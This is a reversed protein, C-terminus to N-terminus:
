ERELVYEKTAYGVGAHGREHAKRWWERFGCKTCKRYTDTANSEMVHVCNPDGFKRSECWHGMVGHRRRQIISGESEMVDRVTIKRPLKLTMRHHELYPVNRGAVIRSGSAKRWPDASVLNRSNLISLLSLIFRWDGSHEDLERRVVYSILDRNEPERATRFERYAAHGTYPSWAFTAYATLEDFVQHNEDRATLQNYSTGLLRARAQLRSMKAVDCIELVEAFSPLKSPDSLHYLISIAGVYATGRRNSTPVGIATARFLPEEPHLTEVMIASREPADTEPVQGVARLRAHVNYEFIVTKYPSRARSMMELLVEPFELALRAAAETIDDSLFFRNAGMVVPLLRRAGAAMSGPVNPELLKEPKSLAGRLVDAIPLEADM